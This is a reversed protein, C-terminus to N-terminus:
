IVLKGLISFTNGTLPNINKITIKRDFTDLPTATNVITDKFTIANTRVNLVARMGKISKGDTSLGTQVGVFPPSLDLPLVCIEKNILTGGPTFVITEGQTIIANTSGSLTITNTASDISSVTTNAPIIDRFQVVQGLTIGAISVLKITTGAPTTEALSQGFVDTCFEEMSRDIIGANAYVYVYGNTLNLNASTRFQTGLTPPITEPPRIVETIQVFSTATTSATICIMDKKLNSTDSVTVLNGTSSAVFYDILGIHDIINVNTASSTIPMSQTVTRISTDIGTGLIDKIRLNKPIINFTESPIAAITFPVVVNGLETASLSASEIYRNGEGFSINTTVKNIQSFASKPTYITNTITDSRFDLENGAEGFNQQSPSIATNLLDRISGAAGTIASPEKNWSFYDYRNAEPDDTVVTNRINRLYKVEPVYSTSFPYWWFIRKKIPVEAKDLVESIIYNGFFRDQGLNMDLTITSNIAASIPNTLTISSFGVATVLNTPDGLIYDGRSVYRTEGAALQINRNNIATAAVTVTRQKAYISKVVEWNGDSFRDYEVHFLGSTEYSFNHFTSLPSPIYYGEWLIGGYSDPFNARFKDDIIFEGLSWFDSSVVTSVNTKITDININNLNNGPSLAPILNSPIFYAYPGLGSPFVPPDETIKRYSRLRDEIRYLPKLIEILPDGNSDLLTNGVEDVSTIRPSSGALGIFDAAYIGTNSLGRIGAIDDVIFTIDGGVGPMNNLLNNLAEEKNNIDLLNNERRIGYSRYKKSSM